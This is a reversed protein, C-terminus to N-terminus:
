YAVRPPRGAQREREKYREIFATTAPARTALAKVDPWMVAEWALWAGLALVALLLFRRWLRGLLSRRAVKLGAFRRSPTAPCAGPLGESEHGGLARRANGRAPGQGQVALGARARRGPDRHRADRALGGRDHRARRDERRRAGDLRQGGPM